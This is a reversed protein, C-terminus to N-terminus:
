EPDKKTTRCSSTDYQSAEKAAEMRKKQICTHVIEMEEKDLTENVLLMEALHSLFDKERNLIRTAEAYCEDLIKKVERDINRATEESYVTNRSRREGLFGGNDRSYSVAGIVPNMGWRCVMKNAIEVAQLLDDEAGTTQQNFCIEEAARGGMFIAIKSYLYEKSYAHRDALPLQLTHGLARGRPIISIKHIPDSERVFKAVIAHGAEHFAMTRRDKDSIVMGKREIGMLIRDRAIEFDNTKVSDQGQRGAIIAAENVLAALEAGTFGPTSRAIQNLEVDHSLTVKKAHVQLIKLRGKVDPPLINIQRDFRGSRLLAPDLIDPRNTAALLIITENSSFGDMEVLLANLTQGREEQGASSGGGGRHGGVADIEDIFIICPANKKAESFLDRVRSAGVGVFMEVFDSGSISYFPVGAEGAVARALLTKGTGPPGQFLIGKPINAGLKNFKEPKQLFEVIERLEDKAEPIGAVDKFTFQKGGKQFKIAKGQGFKDSKKKHKDKIKKLAFWAIFFIIVSFVVSILETRYHQKEVQAQIIIKKELLKPLLGPVDPSFTSFKNGLNDTLYITGGQMRIETVEAIEDGSIKALFDSYSLTSRADDDAHVPVINQLQVFIFFTLVFFTRFFSGM